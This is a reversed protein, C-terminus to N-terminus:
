PKDSEHMWDLAAQLGEEDRIERFQEAASSEMTLAGVYEDIRGYRRFGQTEQVGNLLDKAIAVATSPTKKIADVEADVTAELEDEPVVRNVLGMESAIAADVTKGSYLLERADKLSDTVFPLVFKPPPEGFHMDPYGFESRETAFTLDCCIALNCGGAVAPGDVAAIVPLRASFIAELHTRQDLIRDDTSREGEAQSIDYGSSFARGNGRLVIVRVNETAAARDIAAELESLLPPNLANLADPRDLAIRAVGEDVTYELNDYTGM